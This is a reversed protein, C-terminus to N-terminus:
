TDLIMADPSAVIDIVDDGAMSARMREQRWAKERAEIWELLVSRRFRIEGAVEFCPLEDLSHAVQERGLKLFAAVQDVDMIEGGALETHVRERIALLSAPSPERDPLGRLLGDLDRLAALKASCAPCDGAHAAVAAAAAPPLEGKQYPSLLQRCELCTM